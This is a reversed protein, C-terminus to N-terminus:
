HLTGRGSDDNELELDIYSYEDDDDSDELSEDDMSKHVELVEFVESTSADILEVEEGADNIMTMSIKIDNFHLVSYQEDFMRMIAALSELVEEASHQGRFKIKM